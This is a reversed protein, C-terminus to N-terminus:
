SIPPYIPVKTASSRIYPLFSKNKYLFPFFCMSFFIFSSELAVIFSVERRKWEGSTNINEMLYFYKYLIQSVYHRSSDVIHYLFESPNAAQILSFFRFTILFIFEKRNEVM